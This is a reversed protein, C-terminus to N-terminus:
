APALTVAWAVAVVCAYYALKATAAPRAAGSEDDTLNKWEDIISQGPQKEEDDEKVDYADAYPDVTEDGESGTISEFRDVIGKIEEFSPQRKQIDMTNFDSIEIDVDARRVDTRPNYEQRRAFPVYNELPDVHMPNEFPESPHPAPNSTVPDYDPLELPKLGKAKRTQNALEVPSAGSYTGLEAERHGGIEARAKTGLNSFAWFTDGTARAGRWDFEGPDFTLTNPLIHDSMLRTMTDDCKHYVGVEDLYAEICAVIRPSWSVPVYRVRKNKTRYRENLHRERVSEYPDEENHNKESRGWCYKCICPEFAPIEILGYRRRYWGEHFHFAESIRMKLRCTLLLMTVAILRKTEDSIQLAGQYLDVFRARGVADKRSHRREQM